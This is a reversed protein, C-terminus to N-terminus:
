KLPWGVRSPPHVSILDIRRIPGPWGRFPNFLWGIRRKGPFRFSGPVFDRGSTAVLGPGALSHEDGYVLRGEVLELQGESYWSQRSRDTRHYKDHPLGPVAAALCRLISHFLRKKTNEQQERSSVLLVQKTQNGSCFSFSTVTHRVSSRPPQWTSKARDHSSVATLQWFVPASVSQTLAPLGCSSDLINRLRGAAASCDCVSTGFLAHLADSVRM